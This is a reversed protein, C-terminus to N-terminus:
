NAAAIISITPTSPSENMFSKPSDLKKVDEINSVNVEETSNLSSDTVLPNFHSQKVRNDSVTAIVVSESDQLGLKVENEDLKAESKM